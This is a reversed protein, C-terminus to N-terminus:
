CRRCAAWFCFDSSRYGRHDCRDRRARCIRTGTLDTGCRLLHVSGIVVSGGASDLREQGPCAARIRLLGLTLRSVSVWTDSPPTSIPVGRRIKRRRGLVLFLFFRSFAILPLPYIIYEDAGDYRPNVFGAVGLDVVYRKSAQEETLTGPTFTNEALAHSSISALALSALIRLSATM